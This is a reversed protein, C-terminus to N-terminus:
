RRPTAILKMAPVHFQEAGKKLADGEDTAEIDGM